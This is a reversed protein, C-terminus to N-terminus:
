VTDPTEKIVTCLAQVVAFLVLIKQISVSSTNVQIGGNDNTPAAVVIMKTAVFTEDRCVHVFM